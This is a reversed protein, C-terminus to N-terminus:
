LAPEIHALEKALVSAQIGGTRRAIFNFCLILAAGTLWGTAAYCAAAFLVLLAASLIHTPHQIDFNINVFFLPAAIIGLPIRLYDAKSLAMLIVLFPSFVGYIIAFIRAVPRVRLSMIRMANAGTPMTVGSNRRDVTAILPAPPRLAAGCKACFILGVDAVTGCQACSTKAVANPIADDM